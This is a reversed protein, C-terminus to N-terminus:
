AETAHAIALRLLRCAGPVHLDLQDGLLRSAIGLAQEAIARRRHPRDIAALNERIGAQCGAIHPALEDVPEGDDGFVPESPKAEGMRFRERARKLAYTRRGLEYMELALPAIQDATRARDRQGLGGERVAGLWAAVRGLDEDSLGRLQAWADAIEADFDPIPAPGPQAPAATDPQTM